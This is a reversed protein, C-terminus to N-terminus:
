VYTNNVSLKIWSDWLIHVPLFILLFRDLFMVAIEFDIIAIIKTTTITM